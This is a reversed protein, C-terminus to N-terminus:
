VKSVSLLSYEIVLFHKYIIFFGSNKWPFRLFSTACHWVVKGDLAALDVSGGQTEELLVTETEVAFGGGKLNWKNLMLCM